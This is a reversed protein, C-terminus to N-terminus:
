DDPKPTKTSPTGSTLPKNYQGTIGRTTCDHAVTHPNPTETHTRHQTWITYVRYPLLYRRLTSAHVPRM